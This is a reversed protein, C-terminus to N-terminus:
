QRRSAALAATSLARLEPDGDAWLSVAARGATQAAAQTASTGSLHARLVLARGLGAAAPVERTLREPQTPLSTLLEDLLGMATATDRVALALHARQLLWEPARAVNKVPSRSPAALRTRVAATDGAAVQQWLALLDDYPEPEQLGTLSTLGLMPQALMSSRAVVLARAQQRRDNGTRSEPIWTGLAREVQMRTARVSDLPAGLAAYAAFVGAARLVPAPPATDGGSPVLFVTSPADAAAQGLYRAALHARGTLAALAALVPASEVVTQPSAGSAIDAGARSSTILPDMLAASAAIRAEDFRRLKLLIRVETAARGAHFAPPLTTDRQALERARRIADLASVDGPMASALMGLTELAEAHRAWALASRPHAATWRVTLARLTERNRAVAARHTAPAAVKFLEAMPLPHYVVADGDLEPFAGMRVTDPALAFGARYETEGSFIVRRALASFAAGRASEFYSPVLELARSYADIAEARNARFRWRGGHLTDRVIVRDYSLCEGLGYRAAFDNPARTLLGRYISCAEEPRSEALALLASALARDRPTLRLSDDMARGAPVRWAAPRSRGSWSMTQALALSAQAFGSDRALAARFEREARPTDWAHLATYGETYHKLAAFDRTGTAPPAHASPGALRSVLSDALQSFAAAVDMGATVHVMHTTPEVQTDSRTGSQTDDYLQARVRLTGNVNSIAGWVFRGAGLRRAVARAGNVSLTDVVGEGRLADAVRMEDSLRLSQWRALGDYLLRATNDGSLMPTGGAGNAEGNGDYRFPFVAVTGPDVPLGADREAGRVMFLLAAAVAGIAVAGGIVLTRTPIARPREDPNPGEELSRILAEASPFRESRVPAVARAVVKGLATDHLPSDGPLRGEPPLTGTLMEHLVRGLSYVDSRGDLDPEGRLQEPSMYAPTGLVFGPRTVRGLPDRSAALAIGFDALYAHTGDNALLINEPKIDRHVIGQAHAATLAMAIQRTISIAQTIPLGAGDASRHAVSAERTRDLLDRLSGGDMHPMVYFLRGEHEGSDFLPLIHPHRLRATVRIEEHFRDAGLMAGVSHRLMKLAVERDHRMDHALYVTAMGGHGLERIVRYREALIQTPLTDRDGTSSGAAGNTHLLDGFREPAPIDLRPDPTDSDVLMRELARRLPEDAGCAAYVYASRQEAPLALAADLLPELRRWEEASVPLRTM